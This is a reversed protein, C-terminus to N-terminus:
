FDVLIEYFGEYMIINITESEMQVSSNDDVTPMLSGGTLNFWADNAYISSIFSLVILIFSFEKKM